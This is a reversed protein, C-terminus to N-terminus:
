RLFAHAQRPVLTPLAAARAPGEGAWRQSDEGGPLQKVNCNTDEISRRGGYDAAVVEPRMALDTSLLFDDPQEGDPDHVIVLLLPRDSGAAHWLVPL